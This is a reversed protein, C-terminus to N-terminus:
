SQRRHLDRQHQHRSGNWTGVPEQGLEHAAALGGVSGGIILAKFANREGMTFRREEAPPTRVTSRRMQPPGFGRRAWPM